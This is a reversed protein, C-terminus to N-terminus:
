KQGSWVAKEESLMKLIREDRSLLEGRWSEITWGTSSLQEPSAFPNPMQDRRAISSRFYSLSNSSSIPLPFRFMLAPGESDPKPISVVEFRLPRPQYRVAISSSSSHIESGEQTIDPPMLGHMRITSWLQEQNTPVDGTAAANKFTALSIAIGLAGAERLRIATDYVEGAFIQQAPAQRQGPEAGAHVQGTQEFFKLQTAQEPRAIIRSGVIAAVIALTLVVVNVAPSSLFRRLIKFGFARSENPRAGTRTRLGASETQHGGTQLRATKTPFSRSETQVSGNKIQLAAIESQPDRLQNNQLHKTNM